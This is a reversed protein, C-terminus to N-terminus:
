EPRFDPEILQWSVGRGIPHLEHDIGAAVHEIRALTRALSEAGLGLGQHLSFGASTVSAPAVSVRHTNANLKPPWPENRDQMSARLGSAPSLAPNTACAACRSGMAAMAAQRRLGAPAAAPSKSKPLM